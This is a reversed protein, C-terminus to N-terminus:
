LLGQPPTRELPGLFLKEKILLSESFDALKPTIKISPVALLFKWLWAELSM